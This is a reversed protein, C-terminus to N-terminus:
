LAGEKIAVTLEDVPTRRAVAFGYVATAAVSLFWTAGAVAALMGWGSHTLNWWLGWATTGPDFPAGSTHLTPHKIIAAAIVGLPLGIAFAVAHTIGADIPVSLALSRPTAGLAAVTARVQRHAKVTRVSLLVAGIGSVIVVFVSSVALSTSLFNQHSRQASVDASRLAPAPLADAGARRAAETIYELRGAATLDHGVYTVLAGVVPVDGWAAEAWRRTALTSANFWTRHFLTASTTGTSVDILGKPAPLMRSFDELDPSLLVGDQLGFPRAGDPTVRDLDAPSVVTITAVPSDADMPGVTVLGFPVVALLPDATLSTVVSSDLSARDVGIASPVASAADHPTVVADFVLASAQANQARDISSWAAYGFLVIAMFAISGLDARSTMLKRMDMPRRSELTHRSVALAGNGTRPLLRAVRRVPAVVVPDLGFLGVVYLTWFCVMTPVISLTENFTSWMEDGLTWHPAFFREIVLAGFSVSVVSLGIRKWWRRPMAVLAKITWVLPFFVIELVRGIRENM